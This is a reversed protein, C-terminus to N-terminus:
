DESIFIQAKRNEKKYPPPLEGRGEYNIKSSDRIQGVIYKYVSKARRSSLIDNYHKPGSSDCYGAIM